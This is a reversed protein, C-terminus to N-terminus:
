GGHGYPFPLNPSSPALAPATGHSDNNKYPTANERLYSYTNLIADDNGMRSARSAPLLLEQGAESSTREGLENQQDAELCRKEIKLHKNPSSSKSDLLLLLLGFLCLRLTTVM